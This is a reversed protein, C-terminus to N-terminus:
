LATLGAFWAGAPIAVTAALLAAMLTEGLSFWTRYEATQEEREESTLEAPDFMGIAHLIGWCFTRTAIPLAPEMATVGSLIVPSPSLGRGTNRMEPSHRYPTQGRRWGAGSRRTRM